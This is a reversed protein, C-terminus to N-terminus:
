GCQCRDHARSSPRPDAARPQGRDFPVPDNTEGLPQASWTMRTPVTLVDGTLAEGYRVEGFVSPGDGSSCRARFTSWVREPALDLVDFDGGHTSCSGGGSRDSTAMTPEASGAFPGSISYHGVQLQEGAPPAFPCTRIPLTMM